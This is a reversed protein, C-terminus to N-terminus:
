QEPTGAPGTRSRRQKPDDIDGTLLGVRSSLVEVQTTLRNVDRRILDMQSIITNSLTDVRGNTDRGSSRGRMFAGIVAALVAAIIAWTMDDMGLTQRAEVM